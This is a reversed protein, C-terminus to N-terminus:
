GVRFLSPKRFSALEIKTDELLQTAREKLAAQEAAKARLSSSIETSNKILAAATKVFEEDKALLTNATAREAMAQVEDILAYANPMLIELDARISILQNTAIIAEEMKGLIRKGIAQRRWVNMSAIIAVIMLGQAAIFIAWFARSDGFASVAVTSISLAAIALLSSGRQFARAEKQFAGFNERVEEITAVKDTV